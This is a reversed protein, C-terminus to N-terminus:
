HGYREHALLQAYKDFKANCLKCEHDGVRDSKHLLLHRRLLGPQNTQYKCSSCSHISNNEFGHVKNEHVLLEVKKFFKTKCLKCKHKFCDESERCNKLKHNELM